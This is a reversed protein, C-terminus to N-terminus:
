RPVRARSFMRIWKILCVRIVSLVCLIRYSRFIFHAQHKSNQVKQQFYKMLIFCIIPLKFIILHLSRIFLSSHWRIISVRKSTNPKHHTFLIAKMNHSTKEITLFSTWMFDFTKTGNMDNNRQLYIYKLNYGFPTNYYLM